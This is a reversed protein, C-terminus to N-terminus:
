LRPKEHCNTLPRYKNASLYLVKCICFFYYSCYSSVAHFLPSRVKHHQVLQQQQQKAVDRRQLSRRCASKEGAACRKAAEKDDVDDDGVEMVRRRLHHKSNDRAVTDAARNVDSGAHRQDKLQSEDPQGAGSDRKM